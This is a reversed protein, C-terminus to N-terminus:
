EPKTMRHILYIGGKMSSAIKMYEIDNLLDPNSISRDLFEDDSSM